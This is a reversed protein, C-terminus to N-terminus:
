STYYQGDYKYMVCVCNTNISLKNLWKQLTWVSQLNNVAYYRNIACTIDVSSNLAWARVIETTPAPAAYHLYTRIIFLNISIYMNYLTKKAYDACDLLRLIILLGCMILPHKKNAYLWSKIESFKFFQNNM